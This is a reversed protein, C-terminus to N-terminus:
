DLVAITRARVRTLEAELTRVRRLLSVAVALGQEDLEFHDRLRRAARALALGEAEFRPGGDPGSAPLAGCAALEDLLPQPLGSWEAAEHASYDTRAELWVVRTGEFTM